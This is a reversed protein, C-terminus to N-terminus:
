FLLHLSAFFCLLVSRYQQIASASAHEHFFECISGPHLVNLILTRTSRTNYSRTHASCLGSYLSYGCHLCGFYRSYECCDTDFINSGYNSRTSATCLNVGSISVHRTSCNGGGYAIREFQQKRSLEHIGTYLFCFQSLITSVPACIPSSYKM